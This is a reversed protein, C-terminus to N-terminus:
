FFGDTMKLLWYKRVNNKKKKKEVYGKKPARPQVAAMTKVHINDIAVKILLNEVVDLM